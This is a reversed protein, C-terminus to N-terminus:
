KDVLYQVGEATLYKKYIDSDRMRDLRYLVVGTNLGQFIYLYMLIDPVFLKIHYFFLDVKTFNLSLM